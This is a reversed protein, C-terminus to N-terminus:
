ECGYIEAIQHGDRKGYRKWIFTEQFLPVELDHMKISNEMISLGNPPGGIKSFHEMMELMKWLEVHNEM